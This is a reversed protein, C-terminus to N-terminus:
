PIFATVTQGTAVRGLIQDGKIVVTEGPSAAGWVSLVAGSDLMVTHKDGFSQTVVAVMYKGRADALLRKVDSLPNM